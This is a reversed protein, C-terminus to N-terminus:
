VVDLPNKIATLFADMYETAAQFEASGEQSRAYDEAFQAPDTGGTTMSSQTTNTSHNAADPTTTSAAKTVTANDKEYSNLASMFGSLEEASPEKGLYKKLSEQLLGKATMPDTLKTTVDTRSASTPGTYEGGDAGDTGMAAILDGYELQLLAIPAAATGDEGYVSSQQVYDQYLGRGTRGNGLARAVANFQEQQRSPLMSFAANAVTKTQWDNWFSSNIDSMAGITALDSSNPFISSWAKQNWVTATGSPGTQQQGSATAGEQETGGYTFATVGEPPTAPWGPGDTVTLPPAEDIPQTM